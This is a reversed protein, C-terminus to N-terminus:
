SMRLIFFTILKLWLGRRGLGVDVLQGDRGLIAVPLPPWCFVPLLGAHHKSKDLNRSRGSIRGNFVINLVGTLASYLMGRGGSSMCDHAIVRRQSDACGCM